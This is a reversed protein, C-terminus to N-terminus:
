RRRRFWDQLLWVTGLALAAGAAILLCSWAVRPGVLGRTGLFFILGSGAGIATLGQELRHWRLPPLPPPEQPPTAFLIPKWRHFDWLVLFVVALLMLGTVVPTGGFDLAVTIVFINTMLGLFLLAGLCATRPVLLLVGAVVQMWGLFEWYGGTQYMAEFFRGVPHDTSITTFRRGMVKVLGTPIFGAALLLRTAVALRALWHSRRAALHLADLNM